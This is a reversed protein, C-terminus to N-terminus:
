KDMELNYDINDLVITAVEGTAKRQNDSEGRVPHAHLIVGNHIRPRALLLILSQSTSARGINVHSRNFMIVLMRSSFYRRM